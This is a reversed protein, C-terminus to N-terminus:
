PQWREHACQSARTHAQVLTSASTALAVRLGPLTRARLVPKSGLRVVSRTTLRALVSDGVRREMTPSVGCPPHCCLRDRPIASRIPSRRIGRRPHSTTGGAGTHVSRGCRSNRNTATAAHTDGHRRHEVDPRGSSHARRLSTRSSRSRPIGQHDPGPEAAGDDARGAPARVLRDREGRSAAVVASVDDVCPSDCASGCSPALAECHSLRRWVDLGKELVV